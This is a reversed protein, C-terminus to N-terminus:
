LILGLLWEILWSVVGIAIVAILAGVFGSVSFGPLIRGALLLVIAAIVLSVIAGIIGRGITLGFASFLWTVLAAIVAIVLAAIVANGFGGVKLGLNLKDVILLVVAAIVLVFLFSIFSDM